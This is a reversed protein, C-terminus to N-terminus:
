KSKVQHHHQHPHHDSQLQILQDINPGDHYTVGVGGYGGLDGPKACDSLSARRSFFINEKPCQGFKKVRKEM